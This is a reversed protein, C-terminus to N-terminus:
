TRRTVPRAGLGSRGAAALGLLALGTAFQMGSISRTLGFRRFVLPSLSFRSSRRSRRVRFVGHRNAGGAHGRAALLVRQLVSETGWHGPEVGADRDPLAAGAPQASAAERKAPAPARGLQVGSFAWVALGVMVCGALLAERYSWVTSSAWSAIAVAMGSAAGSGARGGSRDCNRDVVGPQVRVASEKRNTLHRSRPRLVGGAVGVVRSGRCIRLGAAGARVDRVRSFGLAGGDARFGRAANERLGFRQIAVAAVLSGAVSGATMVGSVLGIFNERFGIQLLYLNYLFVFIFMGFNFFGEAFFFRWYQAGLGIGGGFWRAASWATAPLARAHHLPAHHLTLRLVALLERHRVRSTRQKEPVHVADVPGPLQKPCCGAGCCRSGSGGAFGALELAAVARRQESSIQKRAALRFVDDLWRQVEDPLREVEERAADPLRCGFWREALAFAIAELRRLSEDHLERWCRGCVADDVSHHLM